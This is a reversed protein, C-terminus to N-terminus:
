ELVKDSTRNIGLVYVIEAIAIALVMNRHINNTNSNLGSCFLFIITFFVTYGHLTFISRNFIRQSPFCCKVKLLYIDYHRGIIDGSFFCNWRLHRNADHLALYSSGASLFM